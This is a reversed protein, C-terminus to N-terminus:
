LYLYRHDTLLYALMVVWTRVTHNPDSRAISRNFQRITAFNMQSVGSRIYRLSNDVIGEFYLHDGGDSCSFSSNDFSLGESDRKRNWVEVFLSFAEDIDPSDAAVTLGYLKQHLDVLKGRIAAAGEPTSPKDSDSIGEFLLRRDEPWYYFERRVIPCAVEAAHSQAVAAMMPTMDGSRETIGDSDIGGYLLQYGSFGRPDHLRSRTEERGYGQQLRRGWVYGTLAETKAELEEPTLLRAVGANRLATMRVPDGGTVSEARFWPSLAIGTLLDRGNYPAGGEIGTRFANALADMELTQAASALQRAEFDADRSDLPPEAVATGMIAPWWFRVAAKAFREDEVIREALWQISNETSPAKMDGFGPERM